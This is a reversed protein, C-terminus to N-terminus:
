HKIYKMKEMDGNIADRIAFFEFRIAEKLNKSLLAYGILRAPTKIVQIIKWKISNSGRLILYISRCNNDNRINNNHISNRM